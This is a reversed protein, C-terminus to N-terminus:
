QQVVINEKVDALRKESQGSTPIGWFHCYSCLPVESRKGQRHLEMWHMRKESNWIDHLSQKKADGIVGKRKPDFRVCISVDGERNIAMHNLFDLCIAIEPITPDRKYNFSGMPSHLVRKICLVGLQEYRAYDVDGNVRVNTYPKRDGKISLFEKFIEFQEDAEPDNEFVSVALTDLNDIIEGSKEVLLKGNTVINRIQNTFLRAAKGFHPYLLGEGNNHLQVVINPPLQSAIHKVLEFDMDGYNLALEPHDKEVKRRGCM